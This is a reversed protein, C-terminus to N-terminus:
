HRAAHSSRRARYRLNYTVRRRLPRGSLLGDLPKAEELYVPGDGQKPNRRFFKQICEDIIALLGAFVAIVCLFLYLDPDHWSM